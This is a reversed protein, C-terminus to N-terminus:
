HLMRCRLIYSVEQLKNMLAENYLSHADMFREVIEQAERSRHNSLLSLLWNSPFFISGTQQVEQLIDLGPTIYKVSHATFQEHNLLALMKQAWTEVRRGDRNLLEDFLM